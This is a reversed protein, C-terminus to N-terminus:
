VTIVDYKIEIETSSRLAIIDNLRLAFNGM